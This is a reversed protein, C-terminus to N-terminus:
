QENSIPKNNLRDCEEATCIFWNEPNDIMDLVRDAKEGLTSGWGKLEIFKYQSNYHMYEVNPADDSYAPYYIHHKLWIGEKFKQILEHSEM